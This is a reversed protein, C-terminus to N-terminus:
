GSLWVLLVSFVVSVNGSFGHFAPVGRSSPILVTYDSSAPSVPQRWVVKSSNKQHPDIEVLRFWMDNDKVGLGGAPDLIGDTESIVPLSGPEEDEADVDGVSGSSGSSGSTKASVLSDLSSEAWSADDQIEHEGINRGFVIAGRLDLPEWESASTATFPAHYIQGLAM